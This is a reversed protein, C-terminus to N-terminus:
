LVVIASAISFCYWYLFIMYTRHDAQPSRCSIVRVAITWNIAVLAFDCLIVNLNNEAAVILGYGYHTVFPSVIFGLCLLVRATNEGFVIPVTKRGILRDGEIDRMDQVCSLPVAILHLVLSWIWASQPIPTNPTGLHWAAALLTFGGVGMMLNKTAWFNNWGYFNLLIISVQWLLTWELVGLWWGVLTYLEMSVILRVWAGEYSVAGTVLPRDPKNIRDEEIGVIQNALDFTYVYLLFYLLGCGCCALFENFSSPQTQWGAVLFLMGPIITAWVDRWIFQWILYAEQLLSHTWHTEISRPTTVLNAEKV